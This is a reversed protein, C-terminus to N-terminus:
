GIKKSAVTSKESEAGAANVATVAFYWTGAALNDVVYTSISAGSIKISQTLSSSSSGYYINFGSLDSLTSGDTNQTPATWKLTVSTVAAQSVTISFSKSATTNTGDKAYIVINSYKGVHTSQPSGKLSGSSYSFSAWTPRNKIVFTLKKGEPDKATPVFSYAEGVKVTSAPTGSITPPQNTEAMASVSLLLLFALKM